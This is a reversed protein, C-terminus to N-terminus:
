NRLGPVSGADWASSPPNRVVPGCPLGWLGCEHAKLQMIGAEGYDTVGLPSAPHRCLAQSEMPTECVTTSHIFIEM